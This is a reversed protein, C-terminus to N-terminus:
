IIWKKLVPIHSIVFVICFSIAYDALAMIPLMIFPAVMVPKLGIKRFAILGFDHVLYIGLNMKSLQIIARMIKTDPDVDKFRYRFFVFASLGFLPMGANTYEHYTHAPYQQSIIMVSVVVFMILASGIGFAYIIKRQKPSLDETGFYYGALYYLVYGSIHSLDFRGTLWFTYKSVIPILQLTPILYTLIFSTLLFYRMAKRDAAVPRLAPTIIYLGAITFIYWMHYRGASTDHLLKEGVGGALSRSTMFGSTILAYLFSWFFFACLLRPIYRKFIDSSNVPRQPNLFLYGSIMLFVPVSFRGLMDFVNLVGWPYVGFPAEYWSIAGTHVVIVGIMSAVKAIDLYYERKKEM